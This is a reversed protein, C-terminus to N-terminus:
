RDAGPWRFTQGLDVRAEGEVLRATGRTYTGVEDGELSSYM